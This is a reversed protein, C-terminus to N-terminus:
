RDRRITALYGLHAVLGAALCALVIPAGSANLAAYLAGLLALGALANAFFGARHRRPFIRVLAMEIILIAMALLVVRGDQLLWDLM